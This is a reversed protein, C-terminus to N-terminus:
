TGVHCNAIVPKIKLNAFGLAICGLFFYLEYIRLNGLPRIPATIFM